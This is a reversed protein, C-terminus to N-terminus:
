VLYIPVVSVGSARLLGNHVLVALEADLEHEVGGGLGVLCAGHGVVLVIRLHGVQGSELGFEVGLLSVLWPPGKPPRRKQQRATVSNLADRGRWGELTDDFYM